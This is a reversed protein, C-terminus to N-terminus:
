DSWEVQMFDSHNITIAKHAPPRTISVCRPFKKVEGAKCFSTTMACAVNFKLM